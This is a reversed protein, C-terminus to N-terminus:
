YKVMGTVHQLEYTAHVLLQAFVRTAYLPVDAQVGDRRRNRLEQWLLQLREKRV